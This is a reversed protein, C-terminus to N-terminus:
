FQIEEGEDNHSRDRENGSWYHYAEVIRSKLSKVPEFGGVGRIYDYYKEGTKRSPFTIYVGAGEKSSWVTLGAIKVGPMDPDDLILECEALLNAPGTDRKSFLIKM